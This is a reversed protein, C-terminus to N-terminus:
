LDGYHERYYEEALRTKLNKTPKKKEKVDPPYHERNYEEALEKNSKGKNNSITQKAIKEKPKEEPIMQKNETPIEADIKKPIERLDIKDNNLQDYLEQAKDQPIEDEKLKNSHRKDPILGLDKKISEFKKKPIEGKAYRMKLIKLYDEDSHQNDDEFESDGADIKEIEQVYKEMTIEKKDLKDYLEQAKDQPINSDSKEEVPKKSENFIKKQQFDILLQNLKEIMMKHFKKRAGSTGSNPLVTFKPKQLEGDKDAYPIIMEEVNWFDLVISNFPIVLDWKYEDKPRDNSFIVNSETLFFHGGRHMWNGIHDKSVNSDGGEYVAIVGSEIIKGFKKGFCDECLEELAMNKVIKRNGCNSCGM